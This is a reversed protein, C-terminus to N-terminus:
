RVAWSSTVTDKKAEGNTMFGDHPLSVWLQTNMGLSRSTINGQFLAM